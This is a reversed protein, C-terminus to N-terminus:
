FRSGSFTTAKEKWLKKQIESKVLPFPHFSLIELESV